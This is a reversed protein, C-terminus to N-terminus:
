EDSIECDISCTGTWWSSFSHEYFHYSHQHLSVLYTDTTLKSLTNSPGHLRQINDYADTYDLCKLEKCSTLIEPLATTHYISIFVKCHILSTFQSLVSINKGIFKSCTSCAAVSNSEVALLSTCKQFLSILTQKDKVSSLMLCYDVALHTLKMDSLIIWLQIQDEVEEIPIGSINLGRLNCCFDAINCLGQLSKLCSKNQQLGLRQLNPCAIALQELHEYSFSGGFFAFFETVFHLNTINCNVKQRAHIFSDKEITVKHVVRGCHTCSSLLLLDSQIGQLGVSSASVYPSVVAQGFDIQFM